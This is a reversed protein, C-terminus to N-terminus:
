HIWTDLSSSNLTNFKTYKLFLCADVKKNLEWLLAVVPLSYFPGINLQEFAIISYRQLLVHLIKDVTVFQGISCLEEAIRTCNENVENIRSYLPHEM